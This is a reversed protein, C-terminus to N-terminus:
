EKVQFIFKIPKKKSGKITSKGSIRDIMITEGYLKSNQIKEHIYAKGSIEYQQSSPIYLLKQAHGDFSQNQTSISFTVGGSAHYSKPRNNKDFLITLKQAHVIDEGKKLLVNGTLMSRMQQKDAEFSDASIEVKEAQLLSLFFLLLYCLRM